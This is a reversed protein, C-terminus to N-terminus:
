HELTLYVLETHSGRSFHVLRKIFRLEGQKNFCFDGSHLAHVLTVTGTVMAIDMFSHSRKETICKKSLFCDKIHRALIFQM